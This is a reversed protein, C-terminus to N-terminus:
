LNKIMKRKIVKTAKEAQATRPLCAGDCDYAIRERGRRIHGHIGCTGNLQQASTITADKLM